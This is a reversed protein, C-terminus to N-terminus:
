KPFPASDFYIDLSAIKGDRVSFSEAVDSAFPPAGNPPQITYHTLAVARDGDVLLQRVEVDAITSYFRKTAELYADRGAVQKVPSAYSTFVVDTALADQWRAKKKLADFYGEITQRTTM